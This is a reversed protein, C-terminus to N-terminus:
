DTYTQNQVSRISDAITAAGNHCPMIISVLSM